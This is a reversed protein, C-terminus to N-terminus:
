YDDVTAPRLGTGGPAPAEDIVYVPQGPRDDRPAPMRRRVRTWLEAVAREDGIIM